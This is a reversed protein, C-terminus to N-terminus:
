SGQIDSTSKRLGDIMSIVDQINSVKPVLIRNKESNEKQTRDEAYRRIFEAKDNQNDNNLRITMYSFLADAVSSIIDNDYPLMWIFNAKNIMVIVDAYNESGYRDYAIIELKDDNNIKIFEFFSFNERVLDEIGDYYASFYDKTQYIEGSLESDRDEYIFAKNNM